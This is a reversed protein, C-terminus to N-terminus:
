DTQLSAIDIKLNELGPLTINGFNCAFTPTRLNETDSDDIVHGPIEIHLHWDLTMHHTITVRFNRLEAGATSANLAFNTLVLQGIQIPGIGIQGVSVTSVGARNIDTKPISTLM